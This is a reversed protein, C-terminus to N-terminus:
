AAHGHLSFQYLSYGAAGCVAAVTWFRMTIKTESWAEIEFHHHIPTMKFVRRGFRKFSFVQIMVSLTEIVFIGGILILLLETGTMVALAAIGGGLGLSGTDGMFVSAPFCNFWVFGVCAGCLCGACIELDHAGPTIFTIGVYALFAIACCGGLLGDVGDTLNVGNTTGAVVLYILVVFFPGFDIHANFPTLPVSTSVHAWQTAILWLMVSIGAMGLMKTRGSVGLSRRHSLKAYDDLFGLLAGALVTALVGLSAADRTSLFLYPVAFALVVIAGGMTPTGAKALHQVLEERIHQGISRNRLLEIFKPSIFLCILLSASSAILVGGAQPSTISHPDVAAIM